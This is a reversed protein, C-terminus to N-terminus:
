PELFHGSIELQKHVMGHKEIILRHDFLTKRLFDGFRVSSVSKLM